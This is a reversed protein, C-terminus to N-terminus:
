DVAENKFLFLESSNEFSYKVIELGIAGIVAVVRNIKELL